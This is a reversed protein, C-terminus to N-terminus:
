LSGCGDDYVADMRWPGSPGLVEQVSMDSPPDESLPLLMMRMADALDLADDEASQIGTINAPGAVVATTGAQQNNTAHNLCKKSKITLHGKKRCSRCIKPARTNRVPRPPPKETSTDDDSSSANGVQLNWREQCTRCCCAKNGQTADQVEEEHAAEQLRHGQDESNQQREQQRQSV